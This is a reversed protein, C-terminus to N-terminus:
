KGLAKRVRTMVMEVADHFAEVRLINAMAALAVLSGFITAGLRVAQMALSPGPAVRVMAYPMAAAVLAMVVSSGTVKVFTILLRRGELGGLRHHLLGLLLAANMVAAISTGLAL